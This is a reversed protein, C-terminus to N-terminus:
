KSLQKYKEILDVWSAYSIVGEIKFGNIFFTPTGTIGLKIGDLLDNQIENEFKRDGLCQSFKDFDVGLGNAMILLNEITLNDQSQFLLDHYDWFKGQENACNAALAAAVADSHSASIPFDRFIVKIENNYDLLVKRLIPAEEKCYPCQFDAFEVITILPTEAGMAPDDATEISVNKNLPSNANQDEGKELFYVLNYIFIATGLIVSVLILLFVIGWWRNYWKKGASERYEQEM